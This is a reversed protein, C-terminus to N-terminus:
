NIWNFYNPSHLEFYSDIEKQFQENKYDEIADDENMNLYDVWYKIAMALADLRDDHKLSGKDKTIRTLQYILSKSLVGKKESNYLKSEKEIISKNFIVRHMSMSSELSSIIRSEKNTNQHVEEVEVPYFKTLISQLISTFMGDGMNSEVVIKQVKYDKAIKCLSIMTDESYGGVLGGVDLVFIKGALVKVISYSTEDAGRGSPDISMVSGEYDEYQEGVHMPSYFRDGNFGVNPLELELSKSSAWTIKTPASDIDLDMLILDSTKLPFRAADTLVTDLMYQLMFGAKGNDIERSILDEHNHQLPNLPEGQLDPNIELDEIIWNPLRGNYDDIKNIEPYRATWTKVVYGRSPLDKYISDETQPTGLYTINGGPKIINSFEKTGNLITERNAQTRSNGEVECDDAIIEDARAGALHGTISKISVSPSRDQRTCGAVMFAYVSDKTTLAPDLHKVLPMGKLIKKIGSGIEEAFRQTASAIIFTHNPNKWLKWCVYASTIYTKGLGRYAMIMKRNDPSQLFDAMDYQVKTPNPLDPFFLWVFYLFYKFDNLLLKLKQNENLSNFYDVDVFQKEDSKRFKNKMM